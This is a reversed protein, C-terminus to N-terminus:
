SGPSPRQVGPQMARGEAVDLGRETLTAVVMHDSVHKATILGQEDLWALETRVRDRTAVLGFETAVSTIISSNTSFGPAGALVRLVTLRLHETFTDSM